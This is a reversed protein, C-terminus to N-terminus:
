GHIAAMARALLWRELDMLGLLDGLATGVHEWAKVAKEPKGDRALQDAADITHGNYYPICVVTLVAALISTRSLKNKACRFAM